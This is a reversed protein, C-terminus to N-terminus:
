NEKIKIFEKINSGIESVNLGSLTDYNKIRPKAICNPFLSPTYCIDGDIKCEEKVLFAGAMYTALQALELTVAGAFFTYGQTWSKLSDVISVNVCHPEFYRNMVGARSSWPGELVKTTEDEMIINFRSGGYGGSPGNQYSFFNVYGEHEAFYLDEKQQFRLDKQAPIKDVLVQLNGGRNDYDYRWNVKAALVRM